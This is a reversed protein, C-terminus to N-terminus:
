LMGNMWTDNGSWCKMMIDEKHNSVGRSTRSAVADKATRFAQGLGHCERRQLCMPVSGTPVREHQKM